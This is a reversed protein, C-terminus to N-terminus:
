YESEICCSFSINNYARMCVCVQACYCSVFVCRFIHLVGEIFCRSLPLSINCPINTGWMISWVETDQTILKTTCSSSENFIILAKNLM